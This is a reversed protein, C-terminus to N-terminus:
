ARAGGRGGHSADWGRVARAATSRRCVPSPHWQAGLSKLVDQQEKAEQESISLKDDFSMALDNMMETNKALAQAIQLKARAQADKVANLNKATNWGAQRKAQLMAAKKESDSAGIRDMAAKTVTAMVAEDVAGDEADRLLQDFRMEAANVAANVDGGLATALDRVYRMLEAKSHMDLKAAQSETHFVFACHDEAKKKQEATAGPMCALIQDLVASTEEASMEGDAWVAANPALLEAQMAKAATFEAAPVYEQLFAIAEDMVHMAEEPGIKGGGEQRKASLKDLKAHLKEVESKAKAPSVGTAKIANELTAEFDARRIMSNRLGEHRAMMEAKVAELAAAKEQASAAKVEAVAKEIAVQMEDETITGQPPDNTGGQSGAFAAPDFGDGGMSEMMKKLKENEEKLQRILKDTPNEQVEVVVQLRPAAHCMRDRM